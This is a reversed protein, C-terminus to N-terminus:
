TLAATDIEFLRDEYRLPGEEITITGAEKAGLSKYFAIAPSNVTLVALSATAVGRGALTRCLQKMLARGIGCRHHSALVYLTTIRAGLSHAIGVIDGKEVAVFVVGEGALLGQWQHLREMPDAPWYNKEGVLAVYTERHSRLHVEAIAAADAAGAHRIEINRVVSM